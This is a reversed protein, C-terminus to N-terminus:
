FEQKLKETADPTLTRGAAHAVNDKEDVDLNVTGDKQVEGHEALIAALRGTAAEKPAVGKASVALAYTAPPGIVERRVHFGLRAAKLRAIAPQELVANMMDADLQYQGGEYGVLSALAREANLTGTAGEVSFSIPADMHLLLHDGAFPQFIGTISPTSIWENEGWSVRVDALRVNLRFPFGDVEAVKQRLAAGPPLSKALAQPFATELREAENQWWITYVGFLIGLGGFLALYRNIM